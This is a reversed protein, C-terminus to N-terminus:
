SKGLEKHNGMSLILFNSQLNIEIIVKRCNLHNGCNDETKTGKFKENNVKKDMYLLHGRM